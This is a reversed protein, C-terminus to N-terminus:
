RGLSLEKDVRDEETLVDFYKNGGEVLQTAGEVDTNASRFCLYRHGDLTYLFDIVAQYPDGEKVGLYQEYRKNEYVVFQGKQTAQIYLSRGIEGTEDNRWSSVWRNWKKSITRNYITNIVNYTDEYSNYKAEAMAIAAVVDFEEQTLNFRELIFGEKEENTSEVYVDEIKEQEPKNEVIETPITSSPETPAIIDPIINEFKKEEDPQTIIIEMTNEMPKTEEPKTASITAEPTNNPKAKDKKPIMLCLFIVTALIFSSAKVANDKLEESSSRYKKAKLYVDLNLLLNKDLDKTSILDVNNCLTLIANMLEEFSDLTRKKSAILLIKELYVHILKRPLKNLYEIEYNYTGNAMNVITYFLENDDKTKLIKLLDRDIHKKM